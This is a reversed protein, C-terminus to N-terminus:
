IRSLLISRSKIIPTYYSFVLFFSFIRGCDQGSLQTVIITFVKKEQVYTYVIVDSIVPLYLLLLAKMKGCVGQMVSTDRERERARIWPNSIAVWSRLSPAYRERKSLQQQQQM